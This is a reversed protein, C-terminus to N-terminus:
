GDTCRADDILSTMSTVPISVAKMKEKQVNVLLQGVYTPVPTLIM